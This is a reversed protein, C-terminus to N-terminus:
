ATLHHHHAFSAVPRLSNERTLALLPMRQLRDRIRMFREEKPHSARIGENLSEQMRSRPAVM